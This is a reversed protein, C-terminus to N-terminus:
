DPEEAETTSLSRDDQLNRQQSAGRRETSESLSSSATEENGTHMTLGTPNSRVEPSSVHIM